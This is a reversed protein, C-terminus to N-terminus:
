EIELRAELGAAMATIARYAQQLAATGAPRLAYFKRRRGGRQATPAGIWSSLFGKSELRDLTTYVASISVDRGSRAHIEQRIAAGYAADGLRLVGMLVLQEFDGLPPASKLWMTSTIRRVAPATGPITVVGPRRGDASSRSTSSTPASRSPWRWGSGSSGKPKAPRRSTASTSSTRGASRNSCAACSASPRPTTAACWCPIPVPSGAPDVMVQANVTNLTKVVRARPLAQQVEEALSPGREPPLPLRNALDVLVKDGIAEAGAARLAELTANGNTCNFVLEGFAAADAFTGASARPGASAVWALAKDSTASRSGMKVDHGLSVLKSAIASGVGGTGLVGIKM